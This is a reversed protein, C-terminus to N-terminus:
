WIEDKNEKLLHTVYVKEPQDRSFAVYLKSLVGEEQYQKLEDEYLYDVSRKRCGYYLINRGHEKEPHRDRLYKREQLFGTSLSIM